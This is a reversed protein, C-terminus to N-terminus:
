EPPEQDLSQRIAERASRWRSKVTRISCGLLNAATQQNVGAYWVLEFVERLSPDLAAIAEHFRTWRDVSPEPAVAHDVRQGISDAPDSAPLMNTEHNAAHSQPGGYRRALDLLERKLQTIALGLFMKPSDPRVDVLSRYLRLSANQLVDDTDDWRSVVPFRGLMRRAVVRLRETSIEVLRDRASDDGAALDDLAKALSEALQEQSQEM